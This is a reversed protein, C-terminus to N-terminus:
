TLLRHQGYSNLKDAIPWLRFDIGVSYSPGDGSLHFVDYEQHAIPNAGAPHGQEGSKPELRDWVGAKGHIHGVVDFSSRM